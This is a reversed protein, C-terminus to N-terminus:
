WVIAKSFDYAEAQSAQIREIDQISELALVKSLGGRGSVGIVMDAFSALVERLTVVIFQATKSREKILEGM